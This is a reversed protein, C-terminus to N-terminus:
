AAKRVVVLEKGVIKRSAATLAEEAAGLAGIAVMLGDHMPIAPVGLALLRSTSEAMMWAEFGMYAVGADSFFLSSLPNLVRLAAQLVRDATECDLDSREKMLERRRRKSKASTELRDAICHAILAMRGWRASAANILIMTAVKALPRSVRALDAIESYPDKALEVGLRAAAIALHSYRLDVEGVPAGSIRLRHRHRRPLSQSWAGSPRGGHRLSGRGDGPMRLFTATLQTQSTNVPYAGGGMTDDPILALSDADFGALRVTSQTAETLRDLQRHMRIAADTPPLEVPARSSRDRLRVRLGTLESRTAPVPAFDAGFALELGKETLSYRSRYRTGIWTPPQRPAVQLDIYGAEHLWKVGHIVVNTYTAARMRLFHDSYWNRDLSISVHREDIAAAAGAALLARRIMLVEATVAGVSLAKDVAPAGVVGFHLRFPVDRRSGWPFLLDEVDLDLEDDIAWLLGGTPATNDLRQGDM